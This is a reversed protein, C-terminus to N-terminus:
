AAPAAEDKKEVPAVVEKATEIADWIDALAKKQNFKEAGLKEVLLKLLDMREDSGIKVTVAKEGEEKYNLAKESQENIGFLEMNLANQLEDAKSKKQEETASPFMRLYDSYKKKAADGAKTVPEDYKKTLENFHANNLELEEILKQTRSIAKMSDEGKAKTVEQPSINNLFSILNQALLCTTEFQKM